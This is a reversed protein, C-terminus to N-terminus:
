CGSFTNCIHDIAGSLDVNVKGIYAGDHAVPSYGYQAAGSSFSVATCLSRDLFREIRRKQIVIIYTASFPYEDIDVGAFTLMFERHIFYLDDLIIQKAMCSFARIHDHPESIVVGQAGM